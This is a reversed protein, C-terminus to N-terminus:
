VHDIVFFTAPHVVPQVGEAALLSGPVPHAAFHRVIAPNLLITDGLNEVSQLVTHQTYHHLSVGWWPVFVQHVVSVVLHAPRGAATAVASFQLAAITSHTITVVRIAAVRGAAPQAAPLM